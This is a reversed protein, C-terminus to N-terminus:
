NLLMYSVYDHTNIYTLCKKTVTTTPILFTVTEDGKTCGTQLDIGATKFKKGSVM